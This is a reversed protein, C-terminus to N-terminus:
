LAVQGTPIEGFLNVANRTTIELIHQTTVGRLGALMAAVDGVEAPASFRMHPRTFYPADTEILLLDEPMSVVAAVQEPTFNEVSRNFSFHTNPFVELWWGVVLQNGNFAHLQIRQQRSLPKLLHLLLLHAEIGNDGTIGRCHLVLVKNERIIPLLKLLLKMQYWWDAPDVSHDLGVEGIAVVLPNTLLSSLRELADTLIRKPNVAHKPHIGVAVIVEPPFTDVDRSSPYTEPDCFSAVVHKLKLRVVQQEVGLALVDEITGHINAARRLRDPHFHSDVAEPLSEVVIPPYAFQEMWYLRDRPQLLAALLYLVRWHLLGAVSNVPALTFEAPVPERLYRCFGELTSWSSSRPHTTERSELFHQANVLDLLDHLTGPRGLLWTAVQLLARVRMGQVIDSPDALRGDFVTPVHRTMAHVKEFEVGVSDCGPVCCTHNRRLREVRRQCELRKQVQSLSDRTLRIKKPIEVSVRLNGGSSTGPMQRVKRAPESRTDRKKAQSWKRDEVREGSLRSRDERHSESSRVQNERSYLVREDRGTSTRSADESPDGEVEGLPLGAAGSDTHGGTAEVKDEGPFSVEMPCVATSSKDLCKRPSPTGLLIDPDPGLDENHSPTGPKGLLKEVNLLEDGLYCAQDLSSGAQGLRIDRQGAGPNYEQERKKPRQPLPFVNEHIWERDVIQYTDLSRSLNKLWDEKGKTKTKQTKALSVMGELLRLAGERDQAMALGIGLAFKDPSKYLIGQSLLAEVEKIFSSM